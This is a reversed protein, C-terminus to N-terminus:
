RRIMVGVRGPRSLRPPALDIAPLHVGGAGRLEHAEQQRGRDDRRDGHQRAGEPEDGGHRRDEVVRVVRDLQERARDARQARRAGRADLPRRPGDEGDAQEAVEGGVHVPEDREGVDGGRGIRGPGVGPVDRDVGGRVDREDQQQPRAGAADGGCQPEVAEDARQGDGREARREHDADHRARVARERGDRRVERIREAVQRQEREDGRDDGDRAAAGAPRPPEDGRAEADERDGVRDVEVLDRDVAVALVRDEVGAPRQREQEEGDGGPLGCPAEVGAAQAARAHQGQGGSGADDRDADEDDVVVRM